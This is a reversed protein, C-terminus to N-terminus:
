IYRILTNLLFKRKDSSINHYIDERKYNPVIFSSDINMLRALHINFEYHSVPKEGAINIIGAFHSYLNM